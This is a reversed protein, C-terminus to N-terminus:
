PMEDQAPEEQQEPQNAKKTSTQVITSAAILGEAERLATHVMCWVVPRDQHPLVPGEPSAKQTEIGERSQELLKRCTYADGLQCHTMARFLLSLLADKSNTFESEADPFTDLAKEFRGLRYLAM